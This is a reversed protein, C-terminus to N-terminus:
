FSVDALDALETTPANRDIKSYPDLMSDIFLASRELTYHARDKELDVILACPGDTVVIQTLSTKPMSRRVVDCIEKEIERIRDEPDGQSMYRDIRQNMERILEVMGM